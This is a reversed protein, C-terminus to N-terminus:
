NGSPAGVVVKATAEARVPLCGSGGCVVARALVRLEGSGDGRAALALAFDAGDADRRSADGAAVRTRLPPAFPPADLVIVDGWTWKGGVSRERVTCLVKGPGPLPTCEAEARLAPAPGPPAWPGSSGGLALAPYALGVAFLCRRVAHPAAWRWRSAARLRM